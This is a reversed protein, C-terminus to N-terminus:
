NVSPKVFPVVRFNGFSFHFDPIASAPYVTSGADTYSSNNFKMIGGKGTMFTVLQAFTAIKEKAIGKFPSIPITVTRWGDMVIPSVEGGGTAWPAFDFRWDASGSVLEFRIFGSSWATSVFYDFQFALSTIPTSGTISGNSSALVSNLAACTRFDFGASFGTAIASQNIPVSRYTDPNKPGIGSVPLVVSQNSSILNTSGFNYARQQCVAEGTSVNADNSFKQIFIGDRKNMYNHSNAAGNDGEVRIAGATNTAGAPVVATIITYEENVTFNDSSLSIDGPFTIKTLDRLGTGYIEITEGERPLSHSVSSIVPMAGQIMFKHTIDDYKTVVRITNRVSIDQIDKGFPLDSPIKFIIHNETVYGPNVSVKVGNVYIERTTAFGAGDLRVNAGLRAQVVTSDSVSKNHLSVREILIQKSQEAGEKKCASIVTFFIALLFLVKINIYKNKKM